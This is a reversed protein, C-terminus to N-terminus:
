SNWHSGRSLESHAYLSLEPLTAGPLALLLEGYDDVDKRLATSGYRALTKLLRKMPGVIDRNRVTASTLPSANRSWLMERLVQPGLMRHWCTAVRRNSQILRNVEDFHKSALAVLSQVAPIDRGAVALERLRAAIQLGQPSFAQALTPLPQSGSDISATGGSGSGGGSGAGGGGSSLGGQPPINNIALQADVEGYGWNNNPLAGMSPNKQPFNTLATRVDEAKLGPNRQLLLAVVGTVHPASMSTGQMPVYFDLCCDCCYWKSREGSAPAMIGEYPSNELGPATIDPKQRNDAALTPGRSSFDALKGDQSGCAGVTIVNRASGPSEVTTAQVRDAWTLVPRSYAEQDEIWLDLSLPQGATETLGINWLGSPITGQSPPTLRFRIENKSLPPMNLWSFGTLACGAVQLSAPFNHSPTIPTMAATPPQPPTLTFQLQGGRYWIDIDLPSAVDPPVMIPITLTGNAAVQKSTHLGANYDSNAFDQATGMAGSNGASVVVVQGAAGTLLGDIGVDWAGTGDHPNMATGLSFNVVAPEPPNLAAAKQLVYKCAQVVDTAQNPSPPYNDKPGPNDPVCKVIILDASPAVGWFTNAGHCNGSQSGNGAAIGAVHTGHGVNDQHAFPQSKNALAAAIDSASFEVGFSYGTPPKQTGSAKLTQDWIWLIRTSGGAKRFNEHFIDIGTDCIGVVVGAGTYSPHGNRVTDADIQPVSTNLHPHPREHARLIIDDGLAALAALQSVRITGSLMNEAAEVTVELGHRKLVEVDGAHYVFVPISYDDRTRPDEAQYDQLHKRLHHDLVAM